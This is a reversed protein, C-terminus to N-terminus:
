DARGVELAAIEVAVAQWSEEWTPPAGANRAPAANALGALLSALEAATRFCRGHMGPEFVERLVEGYDFVLAPLRAGRMDALKMPLDLGSSSAHLCLGADATGLLEGYAAAPLWAVRLSVRESERFARAFETQGAGRGTAIVTVHRGAPWPVEGSAIRQAADLLLSVNEDATWSSPMVLWRADDPPPPVDRLQAQWWATRDAPARAFFGAPSQDRLVTVDGADVWSAVRAALAASVAWHTDAKRTFRRELARYLAVTLRNRGAQAFITHGINHWDVALRMGSQQAARLAALIPFAPPNQVIALRWRTGTKAITRALRWQVRWRRAGKAEVPLEIGLVDISADGALDDPIETERLGALTVSWGRARLMRAHNLMRPSRGLDGGVAVLAHPPAAPNM